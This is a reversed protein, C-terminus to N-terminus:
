PLRTPAIQAIPTVDTIAMIITHYVASDNTNNFVTIWHLNFYPFGCNARLFIFDSQCFRDIPM